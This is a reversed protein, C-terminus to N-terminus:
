SAELSRVAFNTHATSEGHYTYVRIVIYQLMYILVAARIFINFASREIRKHGNENILKYTAKIIKVRLLCM